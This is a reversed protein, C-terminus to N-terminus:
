HASLVTFAPHRLAHVASVCGSRNTKDAVGCPKVPLLSQVRRHCEVNRVRLHESAIDALIPDIDALSPGTTLFMLEDFTAATAPANAVAPTTVVVDKPLMSTVPVELKECQQLLELTAAAIESTTSSKVALFAPSRLLALLESEVVDYRGRMAHTAIITALAELDVQMSDIRKQLLNTLALEEFDPVLVDFAALTSMARTKVDNEDIDLSVQGESGTADRRAALSEGILTRLRSLIHGVATTVDM